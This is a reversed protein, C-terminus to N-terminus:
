AQHPEPLSLDTASKTPFSRICEQYLTKKDAHEIGHSAMTRSAKDCDRGGAVCAMSGGPEGEEESLSSASSPSCSIMGHPLLQDHGPLGESFPTPLHFPQLLAKRYGLGRETGRISTVPDERIASDDKEEEPKAEKPL